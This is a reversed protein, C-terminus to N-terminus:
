AARSVVRIAYVRWAWGVFLGIPLEALPSAPSIRLGTAALIAAVGVFALAITAIVQVAPGSALWSLGRLESEPPRPGPGASTGKPFLRTECTIYQCGKEANLDNLRNVEAAAAQRGYLVEKVTISAALFEQDIPLDVRVVAHVQDRPKHQKSM